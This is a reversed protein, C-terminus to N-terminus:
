LYMEFGKDAIYVPIGTASIVRERFDEANSSKDSLHILVINEVATLDSSKLADICTDISMHNEIVRNRYPLDCLNLLNIDYNAEILIHNLGKFRYKLYLADTIFLINRGKRSLVFGVPEAADHKVDFCRAAFPELNKVEGPKVTKLSAGSLGLAKATGGTMYVPVGRFLWESVYKAHDGHEHTVLVARIKGIDFDLAQLVTKVPIGAEVILCANDDGFIYCNGKSSSGLVKLKM